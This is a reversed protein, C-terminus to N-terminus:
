GSCGACGQAPSSPPATPGHEEVSVLSPPGDSSDGSTSNLGDDLGFPLPFAPARTRLYYIGTKLGLEWARMQIRMQVSDFRTLPHRRLPPPMRVLLQTSPHAISLTMSQSQEIYPARDGAMDVVVFPEIEWATRYIDRTSQPIGEINQVSGAEQEAGM